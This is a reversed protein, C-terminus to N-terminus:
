LGRCGVMAEAEDSPDPLTCHVAYHDNRSYRALGPRITVVSSADDTGAGTNCLYDGFTVEGLCSEDNPGAGEDSCDNRVRWPAIGILTVPTGPPGASPIIAELAAHLKM